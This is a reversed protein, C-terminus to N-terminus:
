QQIWGGGLVVDGDYFVAAQGPTVAKQPEDFRVEASGGPGPLVAAPAPPHASRIKVFARFPGAPAPTILWNIDIVACGPRLLDAEEGATISGRGPDIAVVYRRGASPLWRGMRQGVTFRAIGPHRGIVAGRMDLIDGPSEAVAGTRALFARYDAGHLFCIEQSEPRQHLDLGREASIRRAADKTLGGLPFLARSLVRPPIRCLFYSQDKRRDAGRLLLARGGTREIRAYHGTAVAEAGLEDAYALLAAFKVEANCVVCPNPTRGSRYERGFYGIVREEFEGRADLVSHPIGLLTAARRAPADGEGGPPPPFLDITAGVVEHGEETLLLAAVASDMGGSLGVVIKM